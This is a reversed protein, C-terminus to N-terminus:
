AKAKNLELAGPIGLISQVVEVALGEHAGVKDHLERLLGTGASVGVVVSVPADWDESERM